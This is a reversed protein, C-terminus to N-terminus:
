LSLSRYVRGLVPGTQAWVAEAQERDRRLQEILADAGSFKQESRLRSLFSVTLAQGYLDKDVGLLHVELRLDTGAFTPRQGLNAMGPLWEGAGAQPLGVQVGVAYVGAAPLARGAPVTVNATPFGLLRGRGDGAGVDGVVHYPRALARWVDAVQGAQLWQRVLTSSIAQGGVVVPAVVEATFGLGPGVAALLEPTGRGGQGFRFNWGECVHRARLRGALVDRAFALPDMAALEPTFPLVLLEDVGLAAMLAAKEQVSTLQPPASEPRLVALPHPEFTVATAVWGNAAAVTRTRELIHQHGVHIGDFAGVTVARGTPATPLQDLGYILKM